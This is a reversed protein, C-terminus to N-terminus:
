VIPPAVFVSTAESDTRQRSTVTPVVIRPADEWSAKKQEAMRQMVEYETVQGEWCCKSRKLQSKPRGEIRIKSTVKTDAKNGRSFSTSSPQRPFARRLQETKIPSCLTKPNTDWNPYSQNLRFTVRKKKRQKTCATCAYEGLISCYEQKPDDAKPCTRTGLKPDERREPLPTVARTPCPDFRSMLSFHDKKPPVSKDNARTWKNFTLLELEVARRMAEVDHETIEDVTPSRNRDKGFLRRSISSHLSDRGRFTGLPRFRETPVPRGPQVRVQVTNRRIISPLRYSAMEM